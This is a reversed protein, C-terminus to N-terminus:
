KACPSGYLGDLCPIRWNDIALNASLNFFKEMQRLDINVIIDFMFIVVSQLAKSFLSILM